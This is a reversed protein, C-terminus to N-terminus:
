KKVQTSDGGLKSRIFQINQPDESVPGGTVLDRQTRMWRIIEDDTSKATPMSVETPNVEDTGISDGPKAGKEAAHNAWSQYTNREKILDSMQKDWGVSSRMLGAMQAYRPDTEPMPKDTDPDIMNKAPDSKTLAVIDDNVSKLNKQATDMTYQFKASKGSNDTRITAARIKSQAAINALKEKLAPLGKYYDSMASARTVGAAAREGSIRSNAIDKPNEMNAILQDNTPPVMKGDPGAVGNTLQSSMKAAVVRSNVNDYMEHFAKIREEGKLTNLWPTMTDLRSNFDSAIEPHEKTLDAVYAKAGSIGSNLLQQYQAAQTNQDKIQKDAELAKIAPQAAQLGASQFQNFNLGTAAASVPTDFNQTPTTLDIPMPM